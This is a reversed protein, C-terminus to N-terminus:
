ADPQKSTKDDPHKRKNPQSLRDDSYPKPQKDVRGFVRSLFIHANWEKNFWRLVICILALGFTLLVGIFLWGSDTTLQGQLIRMLDANEHSSRSALLGIIEFRVWTMGALMSLLLCGALGAWREIIRIWNEALQPRNNILFFAALVAGFILEWVEKNSNM